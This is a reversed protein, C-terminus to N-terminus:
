TDNTNKQPHLVTFSTIAVLVREGVQLRMATAEPKPRTAIISKPREPTETTLYFPTEDGRCEEAGRDLRLRIREYAGVFAIEEISASSIKAHGPRLLDSRSLVVDEPRFVIKV